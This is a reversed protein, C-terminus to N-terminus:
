EELRNLDELLTARGESSDVEGSLKSDDAFKMLTCKIGDDLDSIFTNYLTPGIDM